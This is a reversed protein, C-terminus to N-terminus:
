LETVLDCIMTYKLKLELSLTIYAIYIVIFLLLKTLSPMIDYDFNLRKNRSSIQSSNPILLM